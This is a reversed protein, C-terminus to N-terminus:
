RSPEYFVKEGEMGKELTSSSRFDPFVDGELDRIGKNTKRQCRSRDLLERLKSSGGGM